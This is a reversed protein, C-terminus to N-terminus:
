QSRLQVFMPTGDPPFPQLQNLRTPCSRSSFERAKSAGFREARTGTLLNLYLLQCIWKKRTSKKRRVTDYAAICYRHDEAHHPESSIHAFGAWLQTQLAPTCQIRRIPEIQTNLANIKSEPYRLPLIHVIFLTTPSRFGTSSASNPHSEHVPVATPMPILILRAPRRGFFFLTYISRSLLCKGLRGWRLGLRNLFDGHRPPFVVLGSM